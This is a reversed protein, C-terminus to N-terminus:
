HVYYTKVRRIREEMKSMLKRRNRAENSEKNTPQNITEPRDREAKFSDEGMQHDRPAGEYKVTLHWVFTWVYPLFTQQNM